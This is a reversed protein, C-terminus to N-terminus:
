RSPVPTPDDGRARSADIANPAAAIDAITAPESGTGAVSVITAMTGAAIISALSRRSGFSNTAAAVMTSATATDIEQASPPDTRGAEIATPAPAM